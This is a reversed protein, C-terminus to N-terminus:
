NAELMIDEQLKGGRRFKGLQLRTPVSSRARKGGRNGQSHWCFAAVSCLVLWVPTPISLAPALTEESSLSMWNRWCVCLLVRSFSCSSISWRFRALLPSLSWEFGGPDNKSLIQVSDIQECIMEERIWFQLILQNHSSLMKRRSTASCLHVVYVDTWNSLDTNYNERHHILCRTSGGGCPKRSFCHWARTRLHYVAGPGGITCLLWECFSWFRCM